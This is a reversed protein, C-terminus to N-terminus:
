IKDAVGNYYSWSYWCYLILCAPYIDKGKSPNFRSLSEHAEQKQRFGDFKGFGSASM